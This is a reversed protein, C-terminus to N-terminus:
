ARCSKTGCARCRTESFNYFVKGKGLEDKTFSVHYDFNFDSGFSSVWPFRWGMRAKYREIEALPARSVALLTM